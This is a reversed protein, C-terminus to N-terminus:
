SSLHSNLSDRCKQSVCFSVYISEETFKKAVVNTLSHACVFGQAANKTYNNLRFSFLLVRRKYEQSTFCHFLQENQVTM